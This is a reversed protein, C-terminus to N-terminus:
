PKRIFANSRLEELHTAALAALRQNILQSKVQDRSTTEAGAPTRACLMLFVHTAGQAYDVSEGPDLMALQLAVNAPVRALPLTEVTLQDAPQGKAITYLDDCVDVKGRIGASIAAADKGEPLLYTAYKLRDKARDDGAKQVDRLLFIGVATGMDIPQSIDNPKLALVRRSVAPPLTSAPVWDVKGGKVSTPASSYTRAATSFQAEDTIKDRISRALAMVQDKGSTGVPIVIESLLVRSATDAAANAIAADIEADSIDVKGQFRARVTDRWVLGAEVFDRFTEVSVGAQALAAVFQDANLNARAAFEEMGAKIQDPTAQIGLLKAETMRLRDDILAQLAQAQLDGPTQFLRLMQVRQKIEFDTIARDNVLVRPAFLGQAMAPSVVPGTLAGTVAASAALAAILLAPRRIMPM